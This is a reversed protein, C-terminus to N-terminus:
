EFWSVPRNIIKSYDTQFVVRIYPCKSSIRDQPVEIYGQKKEDETLQRLNNTTLSGGQGHIDCFRMFLPVANDSRFYIRGSPRDAVVSANVVKWYTFDSYEYDSNNRTFSPAHIGTDIDSSYSIRAKYDGYPLNSLNVDRGSSSTLILYPSDDKYIELLEYDRQINVVVDEEELYCSKDGKDVCLDDNYQFPILNEDMVAVFENAPQYNLNNSLYKYRLVKKFSTEMLNIFKNKKIYYRKCGVGACESIELQVVQGASDREIVTIMAVHGDRWLVDAVQLNELVSYDIEQMKDSLPFDNAWYRTEIGLAYSVFSSCISGYYARCNLGHYPPKSIDETYIKSKPNHIATMLTYISIDNGVFTELEKTSSYMVGKYSVGSEFIGNQLGIPQLPTFVLDTMQDAKKVANQAGILNLVKTVDAVNVKGDENLDLRKSQKGNVVSDALATIDKANLKQDQNVDGIVIQAIAIGYNLLMAALM